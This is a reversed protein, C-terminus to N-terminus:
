PRRDSREVGILMWTNAALCVLSVIAAPIAMGAEGALIGELASVFLWLQLLVLVIEFFLLALFVESRQRRRNIEVRKL